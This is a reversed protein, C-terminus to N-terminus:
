PQQRPTMKPPLRGVSIDPRIVCQWMLDAAVGDIDPFLSARDIGLNNLYGKFDSCLNKDIVIKELDSPKFEKEPDPHITFASNQAIVRRSIVPPDIRAISNFELPGPKDEVPSMAITRELAYVIANGTEGEKEVAFYAAALPNFTWDLLRTPLGHHQALVLWEWDSRPVRDIYASALRKFEMFLWYEAERTYGREKAHSKPRGVKPILKHKTSTLGRFLYNVTNRKEIWESFVSWSSVREMKEVVSREM